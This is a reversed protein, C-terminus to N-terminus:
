AHYFEGEEEDWRKLVDNVYLVEIIEGSIPKSKIPNIADASVALVDYVDDVMDVTVDYWDVELVKKQGPESLQFLAPILVLDDPVDNQYQDKKIRQYYPLEDAYDCGEPCESDYFKDEYMIFCHYPAYGELWEDIINRIPPSWWEIPLEDGWTTNGFGIYEIDDAFDECMGNNIEYASVGYEAKYEAIQWNIVDTINLIDTIISM